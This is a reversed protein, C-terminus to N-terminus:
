QFCAQNQQVFELKLCNFMQAPPISPNMSTYRIMNIRNNIAARNGISDIWPDNVSEMNASNMILCVGIRDCSM